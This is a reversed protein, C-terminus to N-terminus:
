ADVIRVGAALKAKRETPTLVEFAARTITAAAAGRDASPRPDARPADVLQVGAALKAKRETPPLADFAARTMPGPRSDSAVPDDVLHLGAALRAKREAPALAEFAARTMTRASIGASRNDAGSKERLDGGLEVRALADFKASVGLCIGRNKSGATFMEARARWLEASEAFSDTMPPEDSRQIFISM